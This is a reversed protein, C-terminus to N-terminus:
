LFVRVFSGIAVLLTMGLSAGVIVPTLEEFMRRFTSPPRYFWEARGMSCGVLGYARNALAAAQAENSAMMSRMVEAMQAHRANEAAAADVEHQHYIESYAEVLEAGSMESYGKDIKEVQRVPVGRYWEGHGLLEAVSQYGHEFLPDDFLSRAHDPAPGTVAPAPAAGGITSGAGEDPLRGGGWDRDVLM